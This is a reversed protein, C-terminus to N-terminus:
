KQIFIQAIWATEVIVIKRLTQYIKQAKASRKHQKTIHTKAPSEPIKKDIKTRIISYDKVWKSFRYQLTLEKIQQSNEKSIHYWFDDMAQTFLQLTRQKQVRSYHYIVATIILIIIYWCIIQAIPTHIREIM